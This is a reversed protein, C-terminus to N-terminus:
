HSNLSRPLGVFWVCVLQSQSTSTLGGETYLPGGLTSLHERMIKDAKTVMAVQVFDLNNHPLKSSAKIAYEDVMRTITKPEQIVEGECHLQIACEAVLTRLRFIEPTVQVTKHFVEEIRNGRVISEPTMLHTEAMRAKWAQKGAKKGVPSNEEKDTQRFDGIKGM